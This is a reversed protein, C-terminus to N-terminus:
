YGMRRVFFKRIEEILIMPVTVVFITMWDSFSLPVTDFIKQMFPVHLLLFQLGLVFLTVLLLWKNSFFGISFISERMSRCNWANFWQYMALTILTMTRAYILDTQYYQLFVLLSGIGMPIAMFMMKAVLSWDILRPKQMLWEKSLLWSEKREMSIGVDLFGDTVLNLWLIQAATIPLPIDYGCCVSVVFAFLIILIEGMNTAFFYLIVRKLTYFIHRGQEIAGIINEFSDNVLILDSAQKAVETGISGMAIGLDAAVLSPADNIGDGTMAVIKNQKHFEQIIRVKHNPSVRSFVTVNNIRDHLQEHSMKELEPGDITDDGEKFIGVQKAVHLATKQHDGTAMVLSLGADRARTIINKVEHRIDDEIGVLAILEVDTTICECFDEHSNEKTKIQYLHDCAIIKEGLAVVRLGEELLQQLQNKYAAGGDSSFSFLTEPSGALYAVCEDGRQFFSAHYRIDSNFPIEYLKKYEKQLESQSIGMKKALILLAAETPDGKIDFLDHEQVYIIQAENLLACMRGIHLLQEDTQSNIEVGDKKFTGHSHYGTGTVEYSNNEIYVRHVMMENRTVTGTKDFVIVDTRGLAEVAQMNKVLVYKKAMRKAGTVLILTLVVPLGEPIVCIFLATLMVLLEKIPKGAFLGLVFLFGCIILIFLLIFYSLRDLENRLPIDTDFEQVSKQIAGIQTNRGTVTVVAKASGSLVYTGQFLMNTRDGITCEGQLAKTTKRVSESEGTLVSEDIQVNNSEIIRADAPVRQGEKLIIIDGPVLFRDQLVIITNNRIVVSDTTILRRLSEIINRTRGEQITGLVANFMLVGSIIFADFPDDGVFFIIVAAIVLVYILPNRFQDIFISFITRRQADPLENLGHEKIRRAVEVDSLGTFQNTNLEQLVTEIDKKYYDM